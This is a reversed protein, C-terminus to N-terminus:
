PLLTLDSVFDILQGVLEDTENAGHEDDHDDDHDASVGGLDVLPRGLSDVVEGSFSGVRVGRSCDGSYDSSSTLINLKSLLLGNVQQRRTIFDHVPGM